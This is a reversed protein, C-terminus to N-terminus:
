AHPVPLGAATMQGFLSRVDKNTSFPTLRRGVDALYSASRVSRVTGTMSVARAGAACAEDVRGQDALTSALLATNFLRGREYGDSMELSRRAFQEAERPMGLDRFAHAFKASMYAVDFYNLWPPLETVSAKSFVVEAETLAGLCGNKDGQLALGHAEMVASEAQLAAIGSRKAAQRAAVALDVAAGPSGHFAAHHSMGALMEGVLGDDGADQCLRLAQRLHQRGADAQGVDYSMWGALQHMEAAAGLLENRGTGSNRVDRLMRGVSTNLFSTLASRNRGGGYRNDLRRFTQTMEKLTEVDPNGYPLGEAAVATQKGFEGQLLTSGLALAGVSASKLFQRRQVDDREGSNSTRASLQGGQSEDAIPPRPTLTFWLFKQPVHLAHAWRDLKDLDHVPLAAREIRSVQGQTLGLWRGLEAQTVEVPLTERYARLFRGFHREALARKIASGNWFSEPLM